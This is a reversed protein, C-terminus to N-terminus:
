KKNKNKNSQCRHAVMTKYCFLCKRTHSLKGASHLSSNSFSDEKKGKGNKWFEYSERASIERNICQLFEDINWNEKGLQRSIQLRIVNPIKELIIAILLSGFHEQQIGVTKLARVNSEIRDYLERLETVNSGNVKNLKILENM